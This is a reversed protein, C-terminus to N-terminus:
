HNELKKAGITSVGRMGNALCRGRWELAHPSFAARPGPSGFIDSMAVCQAMYIHLDHTLSTGSNFHPSGPSSDACPMCAGLKSGVQDRAAPAPGYLTQLVETM